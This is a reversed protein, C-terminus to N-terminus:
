RQASPRGAGGGQDALASGTLFGLLWAARTSPTAFIAENVDAYRQIDDASIEIGKDPTGARDSPIDFEHAPESPGYEAQTM